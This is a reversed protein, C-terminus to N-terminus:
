SISLQSNKKKFQNPTLATFKKFAGYFNSKSKFGCELGIAEVTYNQYLSDILKEKATNVRLENIYDNFNKDTHSNILQSLYGKSIGFQEAISQLNIDPNLYMEKELILMHIREFTQGGKKESVELANIKLLKKHSSSRNIGVYGVWYIWLSLSIFFPYSLYSKEMNCFMFIIVSIKGLTVIGIGIHILNKLWNTENKVKELTNENEHQGEYEMVMKYMAFIVAPIYVFSLFNTYLFLGPQFYKTIIFNPNINVQYIWQSIHVLAVILCPCFLFCISKKKVPKTHLFYYAFLFFFPAVLWQWPIYLKRITSDEGLYGVDILMHQINSISLFFITLGLHISSKSRHKKM